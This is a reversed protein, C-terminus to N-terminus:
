DIGLTFFLALESQAAYETRCQEWNLYVKFVRM